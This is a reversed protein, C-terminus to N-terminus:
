QGRGNASRRPVSPPVDVYKRFTRTFHAQDAFGSCFAVEALSLRADGLMAEACAVRARQVTASFTTSEAHLARQLTRLSLGLEAAAQRASWNALPDRRVLAHLRERVSGVVSLPVQALGGSRWSFIATHTVRPLAVGHAVPHFQTEDEGGFAARLESAGALEFLSILLGWVFLDNVGAIAAGDAAVHRAVLHANDVRIVQVRNSSHAFRELLTWRELVARPEPSAVVGRVVPHDARRRLEAGVELVRAWGHVAMVDELIETKSRGDVVVDPFLGSVAAQVLSQLTASTTV